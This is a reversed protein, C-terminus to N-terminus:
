QSDETEYNNHDLEKMDRIISTRKTELLAKRRAWFVALAQGVEFGNQGDGEVFRADHLTMIQSLLTAKSIGMARSMESPLVPGGQEALFKLIEICTQVSKVRTYSNM